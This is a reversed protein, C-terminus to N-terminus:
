ITIIKDLYHMERNEYEIFIKQMYKIERKTEENNLIAEIRDKIVKVSDNNIDGLQGIKHHELRDANGYMDSKLKWPYVLMPVGYKISEKVSGAGGHTIFLSSRKLIDLQPAIECVHVNPPFEQELFGKNNQGIALILFHDDLQKFVSIVKEFFINKSKFTSTLSGLACYVIPRECINLNEWDLISQEREENIFSGVFNANSYDDRNVDFERPFLIIEKAGLVKFYGIRNNKTIHDIESQLNADRIVNDYYLKFKPDEFNKAQRINYKAWDFNNKLHNWLTNKKLLRYDDPVLGKARDCCIWTQIMKFSQKLGKLHLGWNWFSTEVLFLLPSYRNIVKRAVENTSIAKGEENFILNNQFIFGRSEIEHKMKLSSIYVSKIGRMKLMKSMKFTPLMHSKFPTMIFIVFKDM